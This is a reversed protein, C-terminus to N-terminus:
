SGFLTVGALRELARFQAEAAAREEPTRNTRIARIMLNKPTDEPDILETVDVRYGAAELRKCRLADTLAVCLKQKLLSHELIPALERGLPSDDRLDNMLQHQCCPTSLIVDAGLSAATTLVVDTAIDCAHLSLVLNPRREPRLDRIDCCRFSLGGYGLSDAVEACYAIVDDKRDAGLMTVRRGAIETLYWYAAFTLYSKGCCLDLAFLEKEPLRPLIEKVYQLFREIQRFKSRKRDFVAGNEDTVGLAILFPYPTGESLIRRKERDHRPVAIRVGDGLRGSLLVKGKATVRAEVTGGGTIVNIQSYGGPFLAMVAAPAERLPLNRHRAKGDASFTELQLFLGDKKEFLRGEARLVTKDAPRSLVLKKLTQRTLVETLSNQLSALVASIDQEM